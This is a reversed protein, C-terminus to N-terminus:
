TNNAHTQANTCTCIHENTFLYICIYIYMCVYIQDMPFARRFPHWSCNRLWSYKLCHTWLSRRMLTRLAVVATALIMIETDVASEAHPLLIATCRRCKYCRTVKLSSVPRRAGGTDKFYICGLIRSTTRRFFTSDKCTPPRFPM